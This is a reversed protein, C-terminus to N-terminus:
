PVFNAVYREEYRFLDTIKNFRREYIHLITCLMHWFRRRQIDDDSITHISRQSSFSYVSKM